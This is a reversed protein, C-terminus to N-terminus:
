AELGYLRVCVQRIGLIASYGLTAKDMLQIRDLVNPRSMRLLLIMVLLPDDNITIYTQRDEEQV